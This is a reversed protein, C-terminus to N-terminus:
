TCLGWEDSSCSASFDFSASFDYSSRICLYQRVAGARCPCGQCFPLIAYSNIYRFWEVRSTAGNLGERPLMTSHRILVGTRSAMLRLGSGDECRAGGVGAAPIEEGEAFNHKAEIGAFLADDACTVEVDPLAAALVVDGAAQAAAEAEAGRDGCREDIVGDAAKDFIQDQLAADVGGEDSPAVEVADTSGGAIADVEELSAEADAGAEAHHVAAVGGDCLELGTLDVPVGDEGGVTDAPKVRAADHSREAFVCGLDDAFGDEGGFAVAGEDAEVAVIAGGEPFCAAATLTGDFDIAGDHGHDIDEEAM